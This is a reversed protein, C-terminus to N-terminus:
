FLLRFVEEIKGCKVIEINFDKSNFKNYKSIIIKKYGLKEAESIRQDIRNVARIEGSLGIEGAFCIQNDLPVDQDSSLISCVVALDIATDDIKIGGTINLFVDKAGLRFGCRKELVALLMNMRRTDFGTTSRQPTGYVASSVLSQIEVLLPRAGEITGAIAVGSTNEDRETILIESPNTVQRLGNGSM